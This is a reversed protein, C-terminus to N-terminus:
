RPAAVARSSSAGPEDDDTADGAAVQLAQPLPHGGTQALLLQKGLATDLWQQPPLGLATDLVTPLLRLGAEAGAVAVVRAPDCGFAAAAVAELARVDAPDPLRGLSELSARDGRWGQPNIGTSLDLWPTPASPHARRAEALRGGHPIAGTM